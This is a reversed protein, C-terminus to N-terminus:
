KPEDTGTNDFEGLKSPEGVLAQLLDDCDGRPEFHSLQPTGWSKLEGGVLVLKIEMVSVGKYQCGTGAVQQLRLLLSNWSEVAKM